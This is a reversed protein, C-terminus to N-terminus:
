PMSPRPARSRTPRCTRASSSCGGARSDSWTASPVSAAVLSPGVPKLPARKAVILAMVERTTESVLHEEAISVDGVHWLEGIEKQAVLLLDSYIVAPAVGRDLEGLVLEVAAQPKGELCLALYRLAVRDGPTEADLARAASPLEGEFAALALELSPAVAAQLNSPLERRVASCLSVVARKLEAEGRGRARAARRLWEIRNAFLVPQEIRVAAALELVRQTLHTRWTASDGPPGSAADPRLEALAAAAFGAASTELIEGALHNLGSM